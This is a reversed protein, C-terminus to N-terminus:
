FSFGSLLELMAKKDCSSEFAQYAEDSWIEAHNDVGVITVSRSIGVEELLKKSVVIRGMSDATVEMASALLFRKTERLTVTPLEKLKHVFRAWEEVSYLNVCQDLSRTVIVKTGLEDRLPAPIFLRGKADVNYHYEGMLM